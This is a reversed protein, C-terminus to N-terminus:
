MNWFELRVCGAIAVGCMATLFPPWFHLMRQLSPNRVHFSETSRQSALLQAATPTPRSPDLGLFTTACLRRVHERLM